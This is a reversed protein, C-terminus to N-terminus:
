DQKHRQCYQYKEKYENKKKKKTEEEEAKKKRMGIHM